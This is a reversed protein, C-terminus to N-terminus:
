GKKAADAAASAKAALADAEAHLKASVKNAGIVLAQIQPKYFWILAGGAAFGVTAFLSMGFATLNFM